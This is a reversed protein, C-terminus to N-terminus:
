GAANWRLPLSKLSITIGSVHNLPEGAAIHVDGLRPLIRVMLTRLLARALYAGPCIHPGAGFPLHRAEGAGRGFDVQMPVPFATNDLGAIASALLVLDGKRMEVGRYIMDERVIRAINAIGYRRLLEEIAAPITEPQEIVRARDAPHEAFHRMVHTLQSTATDIGAGILLMAMSHMEAHTLLRGDVQSALFVPVVMGEGPREALAERLWSGLYGFTARYGELHEDVCRGHFMMRVWEMLSARIEAPLGLMKLILEVPLPRAVDAVFECRGLPLLADVLADATAEMEAVLTALARPTFLRQAIIKRYKGHEPPDLSAPISQPRPPAPISVAGNSFRSVDAFIDAVISARAAVWHGGLDPSWFLEPGRSAEAFFSWPDAGIRPDYRYDFARVLHPAVHAPVSATEQMASAM